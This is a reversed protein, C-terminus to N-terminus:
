RNLRSRHTFIHNFCTICRLVGRPDSCVGASAGKRAAGSAADANTEAPFAAQPMRADDVDSHPPVLAVGRAAANTARAVSPVKKTAAERKLVAAM